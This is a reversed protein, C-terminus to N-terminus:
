RANQEASRVRPRRPNGCPRRMWCCAGPGATSTTIPWMAPMEAMRRAQDDYAMTLAVPADAEIGLATRVSLRCAAVSPAADAWRSPWEISIPSARVAVAGHPRGIWGAAPDVASDLNGAVCEVFNRAHEPTQFGVIDSGLMGDLIENRFPLRAVRAVNPWPGAFHRRLSSQLWRASWGMSM